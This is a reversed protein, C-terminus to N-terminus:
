ETRRPPLAVINPSRSGDIEHSIRSITREVMMELRQRREVEDFVRVNAKEAAYEIQAVVLAVDLDFWRDASPRKHIALLSELIQALREAQERDTCWILSHM